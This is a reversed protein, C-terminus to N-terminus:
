APEPPPTLGNAERAIATMAVTLADRAADQVQSEPRMPTTNFWKQFDNAADFGAVRDIVDQGWDYAGVVVSRRPPQGVFPPLEYPGITCIPDDAAIADRLRRYATGKKFRVRAAFGRRFEVIVWSCWSTGQEGYVNAELYRGKLFEVISFRNSAAVLSPFLRRWNTRLWESEDRQIPRKGNLMKCSIRIYEARAADHDTTGIEDLWDAFALRRIDDEPEALIARLMAFREDM